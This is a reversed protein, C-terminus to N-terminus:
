IGAEYLGVLFEQERDLAADNFDWVMELQARTLEIQIEEDGTYGVLFAREHGVYNIEFWTNIM